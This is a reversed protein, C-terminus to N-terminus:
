DGWTEAIQEMISGIARQAEAENDFQLRITQLKGECEAKITVIVM